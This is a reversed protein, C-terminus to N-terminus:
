KLLEYQLMADKILEIKSGDNNILILKTGEIPCDKSYCIDQHIDSDTKGGLHSSMGYAIHLGVKEDELVNGTIIAKPNCGLGLEAINRRTDNGNFFTRMEDAKKGEGKLDVIRNNEVVYIVLENDYKVPWIGKTKSKGFKEIEDPAGEYPTICAEGSPFNISQGYETCDGTDAHAKRNRLDIYLTDGTSFLIEASVAKNLMKEIALAYKKVEQYNAKFASNEMRREVSPMSAGRTTAGKAKCIPIISSTSSFETMALVLNFNRIAELVEEPVPANNMGTAKYEMWSVTFGTVKGMEGFTKYWEKAMKRRDLWNDNDKIEDHPTDIVFLVKEGSKPAFVDKFMKIKEGRNM